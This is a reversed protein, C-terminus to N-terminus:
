FDATDDGGGTVPEVPRPPDPSEPTEPRHLVTVGRHAVPLGLSHATTAPLHM